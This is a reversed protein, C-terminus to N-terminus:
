IGVYQGSFPGVFHLVIDVINLVQQFVPLSAPNYRLDGGRTFLPFLEGGPSFHELLLLKTMVSVRCPQTGLRFLSRICVNVTRRLMIVLITITTSVATAIKPISRKPLFLRTNLRAPVM